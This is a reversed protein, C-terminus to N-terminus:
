NTAKRPAAKSNSPAPKLFSNTIQTLRSQVKTNCGTKACCRAAIKPFKYFPEESFMNRKVIKGEVTRINWIGNKDLKAPKAGSSSYSYTSDAEAKLTMFKRNEMRQNKVLTEFSVSDLKNGSCKFTLTQFFDDQKASANDPDPLDINGKQWESAELEYAQIMVDELHSEPTLAGSLNKPLYHAFSPFYAALGNTIATYADAAYAKEGVILDLASRKTRLANGIEIRYTLFSKDANLAIAKNGVYVTGSEFDRFNLTVTHERYKLDLVSDTSQEIEPVEFNFRKAKIEEAITERNKKSMPLKLFDEPKKMQSIGSGLRTAWFDSDMDAAHAFSSGFSISFSIGVSIVSALAFGVFRRM